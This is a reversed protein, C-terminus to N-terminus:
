PKFYELPPVYIHERIDPQRIVVMDIRRMAKVFRFGYPKLAKNVDDINSMNCHLEMDVHHKGYGSEDLIPLPSNEMSHISCFYHLWAFSANRLRFIFTGMEMSPTGGPSDPLPAVTSDRMLVLCQKYRKELSCRIGFLAGLYRDLDQKAIAFSSDNLVPPVVLEYGVGHHKLWELSADGTVDSTYENEDPVHLEIRNMNLFSYMSHSLCVSYLYAIIENRFTLKRGYQPNPHGIAYGGNLGDINSAFMSEYRIRSVNGGNGAVFLARRPNFHGVVPLFPNRRVPAKLLSDLPLPGAPIYRKPHNKAGGPCRFALVLCILAFSLSRNLVSIPPIM